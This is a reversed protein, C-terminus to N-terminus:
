WFKFCCSLEQTNGRKFVFNFIGEGNKYGTISFGNDQDTYLKILGYNSLMEMKEKWGPVSELYQLCKITTNIEQNLFIPTTGDPISFIASQSKTRGSKILFCYQAVGDYALVRKLSISFRNKIFFAFIRLFCITSGVRRLKRVEKKWDPFFKELKDICYFAANVDRETFHM